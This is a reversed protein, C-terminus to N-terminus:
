DNTIFILQSRARSYLEKHLNKLSLIQMYFEKAKLYEKKSAFYDGLLLLAHPKWVTDTNTLPKVTELLELESLFNSQFLAKKFIILNKIEKEFKNNELVHDFLNSLEEQDAILNENLILFLSLSSYTSNNALIVTKLVSKARNRDGNELYIKATLYNEALLIKQKEKTESYYSVSAIAILLILVSSFILIKYAEYFKKLKSKKTVDYQAEFLNESM